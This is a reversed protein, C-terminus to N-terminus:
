ELAMATPITVCDGTCTVPPYVNSVELSDLDIKECVWNATGARISINRLILGQLCNEPFGRIEAVGASAVSIDELTVNRFLPKGSPHPPPQKEGYGLYIDFAAGQFKPYMWPTPGIQGM